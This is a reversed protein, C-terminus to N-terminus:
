MEELSSYHIERMLSLVRNIEDSVIGTGELSENLISNGLSVIEILMEENNM